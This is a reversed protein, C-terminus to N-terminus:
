RADVWRGAEYGRVVAERADLQFLHLWGNEVLDRVKPHRALVGSVAERPAEIFVSLRLPTHVWRAGDHLSQMPLGVRLDGGNGEFVGLHGGVVNHLVKNGSGYRRNDVTSAYYQLNIWHTVVMPATMLLELVKFDRDEEWRYEHLFARGGLRLHQCHERPAIVFAANDVLGWEPRVQGWDRARRRVAEFLGGRSEVPLGLRPARERRAVDGAHQLWTVLQELEDGRSAPLADVEFLAVEDTTTDHLGAIFRTAEPVAIGRAALGLRVQPTNLLAAAARANVEGTQGCCAGCDLGAAHPNNRSSSGHGILVVLPAFDRTLSMARLVGAALEVQADSDLAEGGVTGALRPKPQAAASLGVREVPAAEVLGLTERALSAAANLGLAEVFIFTSAAGAKFDGLAALAQLRQARHAAERADVHADTVRLKAGLLGPLQPRAEQAGVPQYEIPLGFFGAFGLTQVRPTTVELARRFVESRVDICFVVQAAVDRPRASRFGRPLQAIVEGQFAHELAAQLVWDDARAEAAVTDVQPWSAMALQWRRAVPAGGARHLLWEWALRIALLEAIVGDERGALRAIWRRYACWSAWGNVDLLLSALYREHEAAPVDLHALAQPAVDEAREPLARVLERFASLGMLTTPAEDLLAFRRWSAYLGGRRDAGLSSQGEDFFAACFQSTSTVVFDCWSLEHALDREADVVDTVRQRRPVEPEAADLRARLQGLSVPGGHKALASALHGERLTGARWADRFYARPMLLTAGSLARLEAAVEAIPRHTLEWFPNVAILRDLPWTPAIRACAREVARPVEGEDHPPPPRASSATSSLEM